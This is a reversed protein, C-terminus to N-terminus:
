SGQTQTLNACALRDGSGDAGSFVEASYTGVELRRNINAIGIGTGDGSITVAPFTAPPAVRQGTGSCPGNRVHWSVDYDEGPEGELFVGVSSTQPNAVMEVTGGVFSPAGAVPQFVGMWFLPVLPEIPGFCAAQATLATVAAVGSARRLFTRIKM